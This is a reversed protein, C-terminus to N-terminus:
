WAMMTIAPRGMTVLVDVLVATMLTLPALHPALTFRALVARDHSDEVVRFTAVGTFAVWGVM